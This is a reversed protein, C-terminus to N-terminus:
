TPYLSRWTWAMALQHWAANHPRRQRRGPAIPLGSYESIRVGGYKKGDGRDNQDVTGIQARALSVIAGRRADTSQAKDTGIKQAEAEASQIREQDAADAAAWDLKGQDRRGAAVDCRRRRSRAARHALRHSHGLVTRPRERALV